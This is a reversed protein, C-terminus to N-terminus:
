LDSESLDGSEGELIEKVRLEANELTENCKKVLEVGKKFTELAEELPLEDSEMKKVLEDLAKIDKEIMAVIEM